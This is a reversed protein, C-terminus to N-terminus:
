RGARGSSSLRANRRMALLAAVIELWRAFADDRRTGAPAEAAAYMWSRVLDAQALRILPVPLRLATALGADRIFRALFGLPYAGVELEEAVLAAAIASGALMAERAPGDVLDTLDRSLADPVDIGRMRGGARVSPTRIAATM